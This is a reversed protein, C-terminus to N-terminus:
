AARDRQQEHTLRVHLNTAARHLRDLLHSAEAIQDNPVLADNIAPLNEKAIRLWGLIQTLRQETDTTM